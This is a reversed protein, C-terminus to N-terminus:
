GFCGLRLLRRRFPCALMSAVGCVPASAVNELFSIVELHQLAEHKLLSNVLEQLFAPAQGRPDQLGKRALNLASNPQCPSGGGM